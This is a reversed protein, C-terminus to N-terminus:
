IRQKRGDKIRESTTEDRVIARNQGYFLREPIKCIDIFAQRRVKLKKM